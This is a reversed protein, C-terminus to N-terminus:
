SLVCPEVELARNLERKTRRLMSRLLPWAHAPDQFKRSSNWAELVYMFSAFAPALTGIRDLDAARVWPKWCETYHHRLCSVQRASEHGSNELDALLHEASLFPHGIYAEAWDLLVPDEGRVLINGHGIDGHGLTQPLATSFQPLMREIDAKLTLLEHNSLAAVKESTQAQMARSAEEFFPELMSEIQKACSSRLGLASLWSVDGVIEQQITALATLARKCATVSESENLPTGEVHEM